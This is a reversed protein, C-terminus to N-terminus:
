AQNNIGIAGDGLEYINAGIEFRCFIDATYHMPLVSFTYNAFDSMNTGIQLNSKCTAIIRSSGALTMSVEEKLAIGQLTGPLYVGVVRRGAGTPTAGQNDVGSTLVDEYIYNNDLSRNPNADLYADIWLQLTNRSVLVQFDAQRQYKLAVKAITNKVAALINSSSLSGSNYIQSSPLTNATVADAIIKKFGTMTDTATTGEEDLEGQWLVVNRFKEKEILMVRDIIWQAMATPDNVDYNELQAFAEWVDEYTKQEIKHEIKGNSIIFPKAGLVQTDTGGFTSSYPKMGSSTTWTPQLLGKKMNPVLTFNGKIDDGMLIDKLIAKRREVSTLLNQMETIYSSNNM